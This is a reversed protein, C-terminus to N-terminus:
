TPLGLMSAVGRLEARRWPLPAPAQLVGEDALQRTVELDRPFPVGYRGLFFDREFPERPRQGGAAASEAPYGLFIPSSPLWDDPYGLLEKAAAFNIASLQAGLGQDFACLLGHTQALGLATTAAVMLRRSVTQADETRRGLAVRDEDDALARYVEPVVTTEIFDDSWGLSRPLAGAAALARLSAGDLAGELAGLDAFPVILVPAMDLQSTTTPTKLAGLEEASLRERHVVVIRILDLGLLRPALRMAELVTQLKEREVPRWPRFLRISRRGGIM